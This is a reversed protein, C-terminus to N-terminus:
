DMGVNGSVISVLELIERYPFVSVQATRRRSSLQFFLLDLEVVTFDVSCYHIFSDTFRDSVM